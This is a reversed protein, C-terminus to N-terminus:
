GGDRADVGGRAASAADRWVAHHREAWEHFAERQVANMEGLPIIHGNEFFTTDTGTLQRLEREIQQESGLAGSEYYGSVIASQQRVDMEDFLAANDKMVSSHSGDPAVHGEVISFGQSAITAFPEKLPLVSMAGDITGFIREHRAVQEEQTEFNEIANASTLIGNFNGMREAWATDGSGVGRAIESAQYDGVGGLFTQGADDRSMLASVLDRLQETSYRLNGNESSWGLLGNGEDSTDSVDYDAGTIGHQASDHLDDIYHDRLTRALGDAIGRMDDGDAPRLDDWEGREIKILEHALRETYEAARGKEGADVMGDVGSAWMQGLAEGDDDYVGQFLLDRVDDFTQRGGSRDFVEVDDLPMTLAARAAEDNRALANLVLVKSDLPLGDEGDLGGLPMSEHRYGGSMRTRSDETIQEVVGSQFCDLLFSTGFRGEHLLQAVAWKDPSSALRRETDRSLTGGYTANALAMSFPALLEEIPDGDYEMGADFAKRATETQLWPIMADGGGMALQHSYEIAQIVRPVKAMNEAGFAEIFGGAFDKDHAGGRLMAALEVFKEPDTFSERYASGLLRGVYARDQPSALSDYRFLTGNRMLAMLEAVEASTLTRCESQANALDAWAARARLEEAQTVLPASCGGLACGVESVEAAVHGAIEPPMEPMDRGRVSSAVGELAEAGDRFVTSGARLEDPAILVRTM